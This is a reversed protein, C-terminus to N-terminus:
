TLWCLISVTGAAYQCWALRLRETPRVCVVSGAASVARALQRPWLAPPQCKPSCSGLPATVPIVVCRSLIPLPACVVSGAGSRVAGQSSQVACPASENAVDTAAGCNCADGCMAITPIQAIQIRAEPQPQGEEGVQAVQALAPIALVLILWTLIWQPKRQQRHMVNEERM